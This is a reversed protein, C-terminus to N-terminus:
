ANPYRRTVYIKLGNLAHYLGGCELDVAESAELLECLREAAREVWPESLETEPLALALFEFVHGASSLEVSLDVTIGSRDFYYCSLRGDSARYNKAKELCADILNDAATWTESDSLGLRQRAAATRVIGALSHTGGCAQESMDQALEARLLSELTYTKGDSATWSAENPLYHTLAILTWGYENLYNNSVDYQAQRAWDEVTFVHDGLQITTDAPINAMAMIAIWQDVHGQGVYSGPELRAKLGRRGTSPLIDGPMLELGRILGGSFAYELAGIRGRDPTEIELDQGYPVVGHMIQWAANEDSSLSRNEQASALVQHLRAQLATAQGGAPLADASELSRDISAVPPPVCGVSLGLMCAAAICSLRLRVVVWSM